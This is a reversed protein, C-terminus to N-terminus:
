EKMNKVELILEDMKDYLKKYYENFSISKEGFPKRIKKEDLQYEIKTALLKVDLYSIELILGPLNNFYVPGFNFPLKPCFWATIEYNRIDDGDHFYYDTATAKYCINGDILKSENTIIWDSIINKSILYENTKYFIFNPSNNFKFNSKLGYFIPTSYKTKTIALRSSLDSNSIGKNEIFYSISDNIYLKFDLKGSQNSISNRLDNNNTSNTNEAIFLTYTVTLKRGSQSYANSVFLLILVLFNYKMNISISFKM